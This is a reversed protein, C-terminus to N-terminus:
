DSQLLQLQEEVVDVGVLGVALLELEARELALGPLGGFVGKEAHPLREVLVLLLDQAEDGLPLEAVEGHVVDVGGV